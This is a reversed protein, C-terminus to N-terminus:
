TRRGPRTSRAASRPTPRRHAPSEPPRDPATLVVHRSTGNGDARLPPSRGQEPEPARACTCSPSPRTALCSWCTWSRAPLPPPGSATRPTTPGISTRACGGCPKPPPTGGPHIGTVRVGHEAEEARLADALESLGAKSATFASWRPVGQLGPAANVLVVHGKAARLAPLLLRTLEAAAILNVSLVRHWLAAPSDAVTAVPSLGACHVFASLEGVEGLLPGLARPLSQPHELDAHVTRVGPRTRALDALRDPDRGLAAVHRERRLLEDVLATGIGGTAGSVLVTPTPARM